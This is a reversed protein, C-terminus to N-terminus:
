QSIGRHPLLRVDPVGEHRLLWLKREVGGAYGTLSGGAGIVRHCPIIISLPNHGVAGGVAQPSMGSVDLRLAAEKSIQGYTMVEGYPIELLIDWVLRRFSSGAPTLSLEEPSPHQGLFYRDLWQEAQILIPTRDHSCKDYMDSPYYKQGEIWLGTLTGDEATLLLRGIPSQYHASYLM